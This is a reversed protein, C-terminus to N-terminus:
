IDEITKEWDASGFMTGKIPLGDHPKRIRSITVHYSPDKFILIAVETEM